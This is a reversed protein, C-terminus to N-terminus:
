ADRISDTADANDYEYTKACCSAYQRLVFFHLLMRLSSDLLQTFLLGAPSPRPSLSACHM